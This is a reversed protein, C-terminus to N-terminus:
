YGTFLSVWVPWGFYLLAVGGLVCPVTMLLCGIVIM